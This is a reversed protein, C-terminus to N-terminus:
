RAEGAEAGEVPGEGEEHGACAPDGCAEAERSVVDCVLENSGESSCSDSGGNDVVESDVNDGPPYAMDVIQLLESMVECQSCYVDLAEGCRCSMLWARARQRVKEIETSNM